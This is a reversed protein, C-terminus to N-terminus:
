KRYTHINDEEMEVNNGELDINDGDLKPIAALLRVVRESTENINARRTSPSSEPSQVSNQEIETTKRRKVIRYKGIKDEKKQVKKGLNEAM